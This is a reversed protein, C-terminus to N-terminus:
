GVGDFESLGVNKKNEVISPFSIWIFVDHHANPRERIAVVAVSKTVWM